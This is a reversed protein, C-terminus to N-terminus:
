QMGGMGGGGLVSGVNTLVPALIVVMVAVIIMMVPGMMRLNAIDIYAVAEQIRKQRLVEAQIGLVDRLPMGREEAQIIATVFSQVAEAPVRKAFNQLAARRTMGLDLQHLFVLLEDRMPLKGSRVETQSILLRISGIFDLGAGMSLVLLDTYTPLSSAVARIRESALARIRGYPLYMAIAGAPIAILPQLFVATVVAAVIGCLLCLGMVESPVLGLPEDAQRLWIELQARLRKAPILSAYGAFFRIVYLLAPFFATEKLARLRNAARRGHIEFDPCPVALITDLLLACALVGLILAVILGVQMLREAM